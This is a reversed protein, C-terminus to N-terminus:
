RCLVVTQQDATADLEIPLLCAHRRGRVQELTLFMVINWSGLRAFNPLFGKYFALPGDHKLTQAFADLVGKYRGTSDGAALSLQLNYISDIDPRTLFLSTCVCAMNRM